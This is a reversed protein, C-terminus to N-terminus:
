DIHIQAQMKQRTERRLHATVRAGLEELSFPKVIYDDGGVSLVKIKNQEEIKASSFIIPCTIHTRIRRCVEIGDIDPMNIDLLILDPLREIQHLAETGYKASYTLYGNLNFYSKLM